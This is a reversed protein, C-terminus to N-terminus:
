SEGTERWVLGAQRGTRGNDRRHSFFLEPECGTCLGSTEIRGVGAEGLLHRAVEPLDLMRASAAGRGPPDFAALVEKGVEYCCPGISPGIAADTAGIAAAGKAVIGAALGRWGCHLMAVGGPGSLAVPVCDAVFVMAAVGEATLVHGDAEALGGAGQGGRGEELGHWAFSCRPALQRPHNILEAGHVQHAVAIREPPFGLAGALRRRNEVVADRDDETFVGLNLAEFPSESVGGVRTSFAARAGPMTAELWRVGDRECWEM